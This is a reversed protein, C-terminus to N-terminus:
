GSFLRASRAKLTAVEAYTLTARGAFEVPRELPTANNNAWTGQLDPQGDATRPASWGGESRPKPAVPGGESSRPKPAVPKQASLNAEAAAMLIALAIKKM